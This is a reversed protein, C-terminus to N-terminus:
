LWRLGAVVKIGCRVSEGFAVDAQAIPRSARKCLSWGSLAGQHVSSRVEYEVVTVYSHRSPDGLVRNM